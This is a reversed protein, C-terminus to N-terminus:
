VRQIGSRARRHHRTNSSGKRTPGEQPSAEVAVIGMHNPERSFWPKRRLSCATSPYAATAGNILVYALGLCESFTVLVVAAPKIATGLQRAPSQLVVDVRGILHSCSRAKM